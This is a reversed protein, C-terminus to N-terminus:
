SRGFDEECAHLRVARKLCVGIEPAQGIMTPILDNYITTAVNVDIAWLKVQHSALFECRPDDRPQKPRIPAATASLM